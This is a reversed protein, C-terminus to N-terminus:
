CAMITSLREFFVLDEGTGTGESATSNILVFAFM